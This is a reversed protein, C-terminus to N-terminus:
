KYIFFIWTTIAKENRTYKSHESKKTTTTSECVFLVFHFFWVDIIIKTKDVCHLALNKILCRTLLIYVLHNTPKRKTYYFFFVNLFHNCVYYDVHEDEHGGLEHVGIRSSAIPQYGGNDFNDGGDHSSLDHGAYQYDEFVPYAFATCCLAASALIIFQFLLVCSLLM